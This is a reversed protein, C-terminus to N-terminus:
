FELTDIRLVLAGINPDRLPFKSKRV